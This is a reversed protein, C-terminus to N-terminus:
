QFNKMQKEFEAIKIRDKQLNTEIGSALDIGDLNYTLLEAINDNNIGGAIFCPKRYAHAKALYRPISSWDFATGTGGWATNSKKDILYADVINQYPEMKHVANEDHHITKWVSVSCTKKVLQAFSPSEDGHLQVIDLSATQVAQQINELTENVFVGVIQKKAHANEKALWQKVDEPKVQRKSPAFVFGIYHANSNCTIKVDQLSRNGCYKIKM